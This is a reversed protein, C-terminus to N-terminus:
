RRHREADRAGFTETIVHRFSGARGSRRKSSLRYDSERCRELFRFRGTQPNVDQAAPGVPAPDKIGRCDYQKNCLLTGQIVPSRDEGRPYCLVEPFRFPARRAARGGAADDPRVPERWYRRNRNTCEAPRAFARRGPAGRFTQTNMVACETDDHGLNLVHGLEHTIALVLVYRDCEGGVGILSTAFAYGEIAKGVCTGEKVQLGELDFVLLNAEQQSAAPVFRYGTNVQNWARVADEMQPALSESGSFFAYSITDYPWPIKTRDVNFATAPASAGLLLGAAVGATCLARRGARRARM